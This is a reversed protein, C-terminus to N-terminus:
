RRLKVPNTRGVAWSQRFSERVQHIAARAAAEDQRQMVLLLQDLRPLPFWILEDWVVPHFRWLKLADGTQALTGLIWSLPAEIVYFLIRFYGTLFAAAISIGSGPGLIMSLLVGYVLGAILGWRASGAGLGYALGLMLSFFIGIAPSLVQSSWIAVMVSSPLLLAICFQISFTLSFAIVICLTFILRIWSVDIGLQSLVLGTGVALLWPTVLIHFLALTKLVRASRDFSWILLQAVNSLTPDIQSIWIHLSIPKFFIWYLFRTLDQPFKMNQTKGPIRDEVEINVEGKPTDM